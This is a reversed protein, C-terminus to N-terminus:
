VRMPMIVYILNDAETPSKVIIKCTEPDNSTLSITAHSGSKKISELVTTLYGINLGIEFDRIVESELAIMDSFKGRTTSNTAIYLNKPPVPTDNPVSLVVCNMKPDVFVKARKIVTLADDIAFSLHISDSAADKLISSLNPYKADLLTFAAQIMSQHYVRLYHTTLEFDFEIEPNMELMRILTKISSLPLIFDHISAPLGPCKLRYQGLMHGDAGSFVVEDKKLQIHVGTLAVRLDSSAVCFVIKKLASLVSNSFTGTAIGKLPARTQFEKEDIVRPLTVSTEGIRGHVDSEPDDYRFIFTQENKKYTRSLELLTSALIVASFNDTCYSHEVLVSGWSGFGGAEISVYKQDYKKILVSRQHPFQSTPSLHLSLSEMAPTLHQLTLSMEYSM